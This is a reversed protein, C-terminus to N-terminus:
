MVAMWAPQLYGTSGDGVPCISYGFAGQGGDSHTLVVFPDGGYSPIFGAFFFLQQETLLWIMGATGIGWLLACVGVRIHRATDSELGALCTEFLLSVSNPPTINFAIQM